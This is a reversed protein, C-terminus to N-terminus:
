YEYREETYIIECHSHKNNIKIKEVAKKAAEEEHYIGIVTSCYTRNNRHWVIYLKNFL